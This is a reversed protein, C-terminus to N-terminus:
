NDKDINALSIEAEGILQRIRESKAKKQEAYVYVCLFCICILFMGSLVIIRNGEM